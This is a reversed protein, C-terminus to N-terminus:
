MFCDQNREGEKRGSDEFMGRRGSIVGKLMWDFSNPLERHVTAQKEEKKIKGKRFDIDAWLLHRTRFIPTINSFIDLVENM